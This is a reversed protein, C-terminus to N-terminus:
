LREAQKNASVPGLTSLFTAVEEQRVSGLRGEVGFAELQRKYNPWRKEYNWIWDLFPWDIKEPCDAGIDARTRGRHTLWRWVVRQLCLWRPCDLKVILDARPIRLAWTKSAYNGDSVWAEGAHAAEVRRVFEATECEVWGPEWYLADLHVVPLDL